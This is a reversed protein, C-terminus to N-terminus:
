KVHGGCEDPGAEWKGGILGRAAAPTAGAARAHAGDGGGGAAEEHERGVAAQERGRKRCASPRSDRTGRIAFLTRAEGTRNRCRSSVALTCAGGNSCPMSRGGARRAGEIGRQLQLGSAVRCGRLQLQCPLLLRMLVCEHSSNILERVQDGGQAARAM